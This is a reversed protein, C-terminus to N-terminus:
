TIRQALKVGHYGATLVALTGIVSWIFTPTKKGKYAIYGLLPAIFIAHMGYIILARANGQQEQESKSESQDPHHAPPKLLSTPGGGRKLPLIRCDFFYDYWAMAVYSVVFLLALAFTKSMMSEFTPCVMFIATVMVAFVICKENVAFPKGFLGGAM